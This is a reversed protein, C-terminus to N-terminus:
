HRPLRKDCLTRSKSRRWGPGYIRYTGYTSGRRARRLREGHTHAAAPAASRAYRSEARGSRHAAVRSPCFRRLSQKGQSKGIRHSSSPSCAAGRSAPRISWLIPFRNGSVGATGPSPTPRRQQRCLAAVGAIRGRQGALEDLHATAYGCWATGRASRRFISSEADPEHRMSSLCINRGSVDSWLSLLDDCCNREKSGVEVTLAWLIDPM